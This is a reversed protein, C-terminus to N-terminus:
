AAIMDVEENPDIPPVGGKEKRKKATESDRIQSEIQKKISEIKLAAEKVNLASLLEIVKKNEISSLM